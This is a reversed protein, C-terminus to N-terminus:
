SKQAPNRNGWEGSSCRREVRWSCPDNRQAVLFKTQYGPGDQKLWEIIDADLRMTVTKKIPRYILGRVARDDKCCTKM